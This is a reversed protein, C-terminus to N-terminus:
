AYERFEVTPRDGYQILVERGGALISKRAAEIVLENYSSNAPTAMIGERDLRAIFEQRQKVDQMASADRCAKVILEVSRHGYGVPTLKSCGMDVLQFYDPNPEAYLKADNGEAVAYHHKVGRYQDSHVLLAADDRGRCWMSLGQANGGAARNPYGM